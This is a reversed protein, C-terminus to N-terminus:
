FFVIDYCCDDILPIYNKEKNEKITIDYFEKYVHKYSANPVYSKIKM